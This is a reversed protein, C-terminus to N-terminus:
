APIAYDDHHGVSAFEIGGDPRIWYHLRPAGPSCKKIAARYGVAGDDRVQYPDSGGHGTRLRHVERGALQPALGNAVQACVEWVKEMEGKPMRKLGDLLAPLVDFPALTLSSGGKVIMDAHAAAIARLATARDISPPAPRLQRKLEEIDNDRSRIARAHTAEQRALERRLDEIEARLAQKSRSPLVPAIARKVARRFKDPVRGPTLYQGLVLPHDFPDDDAELGPFYVRVAQNYVTLPRPLHRGLDRTAHFALEVVEVDTGLARRFDHASLVPPGAFPLAVVVVPFKRKPDLLKAALDEVEQPTEIPM